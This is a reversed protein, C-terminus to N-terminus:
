VEKLCKLLNHINLIKLVEYLSSKKYLPLIHFGNDLMHNKFITSVIRRYVKSMKEYIEISIGHKAL